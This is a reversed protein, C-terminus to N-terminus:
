GIEVEAPAVIWDKGQKTTLQPLEVNVVRWGRHRLVGTFPPEGTVNGTLRTATADFGADVTISSGETADYVPKLEVHEGLAERCGAHINRVAAGIQADDYLSLDEQLFDLFRGQRQLIALMQIAAEPAKQAFRMTEESARLAPAVVAPGVTPSGMGHALSAKELRRGYALIFLWMAVTILAGIGFLALVLYQELQGSRQLVSKVALQVNEPLGATQGSALPDFWQHFGALLNKLVLFFGALLMANFVVCTFFSKIGFAFRARMASEEGVEGPASSATTTQSLVQLVSIEEIFSCVRV